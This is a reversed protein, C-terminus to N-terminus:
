SLHFPIRYDDAELALFANPIFDIIDTATLSIEGKNRAALDGAYGHIFVAAQLITDMSHKKIFQCIMGAIIGSLVDGSGATAMGPNGTPNIYVKGEPAAILTHHGKLVVYVHYQRAFERSIGIRDRRIESITCGTLRSFEGPHPTIIIPHQRSHELLKKDRQLVNLADADLVLPVQTNKILLSVLDFTDTHNGMGPGALITNFPKLAPLLDEKGKYILTMIEPHATVAATRNEYCVAATCLGAGSKLVAFSSLIGAGPKDVSGAVTLGHGYDGKHADPERKRLLEKFANPTIIDIYYKEQNVRENPIGIDIIAIKGCTTNGDPHLHGAKLCQFTATVDAHVHVGEEPLFAESLGSPIDIAAVKFGSENILQIACSYIGEKVPNNIGTGFIADVIVTENKNYHKLREFIQKLQTENQLITYNLNLHKIIEFNIKPDPNLDEPDSFLLFEVQYGKQHLIRGVAIGDGGNNGKGAFIFINRYGDKISFAQAFFNAAGQSANEMLVISPIGITHIAEDDLERIWSSRLLKM